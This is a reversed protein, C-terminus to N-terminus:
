QKNLSENICSYVLPYKDIDLIDKHMEKKFADKCTGNIIFPAAYELQSSQLTVVGDGDEGETNCGRGSITYVKANGPKSNPDNLKKIFVSDEYLDECEAKEGFIRCFRKTSGSIGNNPTAILILNAVSEDGFIQIYRRAVLGGMSHAIINIKPKGTKYKLTRIIDNLRVAYTDINDSAKTIYIYNGLSYFYDYYYSGKVTLPSRSLGWENKKYDLSDLDYYMTGANIYGDDQLQYQIKNFIDLLPEPTPERLLSHGHILLVPFLTPDNRCEEETCCASCENSVCCIPLNEALESEIPDETTISSKDSINLSSIDSLNIYFLTINDNLCYNNYYSKSENFIIIEVSDEIITFYQEDLISLNSPLNYLTSEYEVFINELDSCIDNSTNQCVGLICKKSYEISSLNKGKQIIENQNRELVIKFDSILFSTDNLDSELDLISDYQGKKLKNNIDALEGYIADFKSQIIGLYASYYIYHLEASSIKSFFNKLQNYEETLQNQRSISYILGNLLDNSKSSIFYSKIKLSKGHDEELKIYQEDSWLEAANKADRVFFDANELIEGYDWFLAPYGILGNTNNLISASIQLNRSANNILLFSETLLPKLESKLKKEQNTLEYNLTIFSSRRRMPSKTTCLFSKLNYCEMDFNFIKQGSGLRYPELSYTKNLELDDKIIMDGKDLIKSDSRDYLAYSCNANCFISNKISVQFSVTQNQDNPIKFSIDAPELSIVLPDGLAFRIRLGTIFLILAAVLVSIVIIIIIKKWNKKITKEVEKIDKEITQLPSKNQM